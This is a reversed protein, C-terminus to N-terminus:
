SLSKEENLHPNSNKLVLLKTLLRDRITLTTSLPNSGYSYIGERTKIGLHGENFLKQLLEPSSQSASLTPFINDCVHKWIDIGGYDVTKFGGIFPWRFGPGESLALDIDQPDAIGQELLHFAERLLAVQLRNAIFGPIEKKLVVPIKGISKIMEITTAVTTSSTFDNRVIEVLPILYAPNFFHTIIIREAYNAKAILDMLQLSSTNSAIITEPSVISEVKSIIDLKADMIEPISETVIIANHLSEKLSTTYHIRNQITTSESDDILNESILIDLNEKIQKKATRLYDDKVDCMWVSHGFQAYVQGIAHGMIGAGIITINAM